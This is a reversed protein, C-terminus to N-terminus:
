LKSKRKARARGAIDGFAAMEQRSVRMPASTSPPPEHLVSPPVQLAAAIKQIMLLSPNPAKGDKDWARLESLYGANIGCKKVIDSDRLGRFDIWEGIYLKETQGGNKAM